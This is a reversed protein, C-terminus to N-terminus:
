KVCHKCLNGESLLGDEIGVLYIGYLVGNHLGTVYFHL